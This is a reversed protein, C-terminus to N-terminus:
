PLSMLHRSVKLVLAESLEMAVPTASDHPIAMDRPMEHGSDMVFASSEERIM